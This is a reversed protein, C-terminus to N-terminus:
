WGIVLGVTARQSAADDDDGRSLLYYIGGGAAATAIWFVPRAFLSKQSSKPGAPQSKRMQGGQKEPTGPPVRQGQLQALEEDSILRVQILETKAENGFDDTAAIQYALKGSSTLQTPLTVKYASGSEVTQVEDAQVYGAVGAASRIRYFSSRVLTVELLEGAALQALIKGSSEPTSYVSVAEASTQVVVPVSAESKLQNMEHQIQQGDHYLTITVSKVGANDGVNALIALTRGLRGIKVPQHAIKPPTTDFVQAAVILPFVLLAFFLRWITEPNQLQKM